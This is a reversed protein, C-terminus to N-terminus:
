NSSVVRVSLRDHNETSFRGAYVQGNQQLQTLYEDVRETETYSPLYQVRLSVEWDAGEVGNKVTRKLDALQTFGLEIPPTTSLKAKYIVDYMDGFIGKKGLQLTIDAIYNYADTMNNFTRESRLQSMLDVSEDGQGEETLLSGDGTAGSDSGTDDDLDIERSEEDVSDETNNNDTLEDGDSEGVTSDLSDDMTVTYSLSGGTREIVTTLVQYVDGPLTTAQELARTEGATRREVGSAVIKRATWGRSMNYINALDDTNFYPYLERVEGLLQEETVM